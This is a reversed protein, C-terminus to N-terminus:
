PFDPSIAIEAIREGHVVLEINMTDTPSEGFSYVHSSGQSFIPRGLLDLVDEHLMGVRLGNDIALEPSKLVTAVMLNLPPPEPGQVDEAYEDDDTQNQGEVFFVFEVGDFVLTYRRNNQEDGVGTGSVRETIVEIPEGWIATIDDQTQQFDFDDPYTFTHRVPIDALQRSGLVPDDVAEEVPTCRVLLAM